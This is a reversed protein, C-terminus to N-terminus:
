LDRRQFQRLGLFLFLATFGLMAGAAGTVHVPNPSMLHYKFPWPMIWGVYELSKHINTALAVFVIPFIAIIECLILSLFPSDTAGSIWSCLAVYPLAFLCLAVYGYLLWGAVQLPAYFDAKFVLYLFIVIMLLALIAMTFLITGIFRGLFINARETRLLLYRLGKYQIDGALQNFAGLCALFPMSFMMIM